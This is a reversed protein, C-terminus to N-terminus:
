FILYSIYKFDILMILSPIPFLFFSFFFFSNNKNQQCLTFPSFTIHHLSFFPFPFLIMLSLPFLLIFSLVLFLHSQHSLSLSFSFLFSNLFSFYFTFFALLIETIKIHTNNLLKKNIKKFINELM